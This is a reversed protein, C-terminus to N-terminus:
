FKVIRESLGRYECTLYNAITKKAFSNRIISLNESFRLNHRETFHYHPLQPLQPLTLALRGYETVSFIM